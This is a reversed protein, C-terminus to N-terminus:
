RLAACHATRRDSTSGVSNDSWRGTTVSRRNLNSPAVASHDLTNAHFICHLDFLSTGRYRRRPTPGGGSVAKKVKM